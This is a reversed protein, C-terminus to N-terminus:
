FKGLMNLNLKKFLKKYKRIIIALKKNKVTYLYRYFNQFSIRRSM